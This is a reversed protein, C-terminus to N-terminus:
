GVLEILPGHAFYFRGADHALKRRDADQAEGGHKLGFAQLRFDDIEIADVVTPQLIRIAIFSIKAGKGPIVEGRAIKIAEVKEAETRNAAAVWKRQADGSFDFPGM